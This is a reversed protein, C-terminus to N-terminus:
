TEIRKSGGTLIKNYISFLNELYIGKSYKKAIEIGNRSLKNLEFRKEFIGQILNVFSTHNTVDFFLANDHTVERLIPLDSLLLPLGSAMAEVVAIGFGEHMSSSVFLDYHQLQIAINDRPGKFFVPLNNKAIESRLRKFDRETGEGYIHLSVPYNKLEQFADILYDYNKAKKINGVAVLKLEQLNEYNRVVEVQNFYVDSIYNKVVFAHHNKGISNEYDKLVGNSVAMVAHNKKITKKELFTLLKSNNFVNKSMEGHLSYILPIDSPCAWRAVLSGYFLHSHILSPQIQRIIKKLRSAAIILDFKNRFGLVYKENILIEEDSFDCEASLTVLVVNFRKNLDPLIGVLLIEAGGKQLNDIVILLTPKQM